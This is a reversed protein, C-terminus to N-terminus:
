PNTITGTGIVKGQINFTTWILSFEDDSLYIEYGDWYNPIAKIMNQKVEVTWSMGVGGPIFEETWGNMDTFQTIVADSVSISVSYVPVGGTNTVIIGYCLPTSYHPALEVSTGKANVSMVPLAVFILVALLCLIRKM